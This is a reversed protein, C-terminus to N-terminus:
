YVELFFGAYLNLVGANQHAHNILLSNKLLSLDENPDLPLAKRDLFSQFFKAILLLICVNFGLVFFDETNSGLEGLYGNFARNCHCLVRAAMRSVDSKKISHTFTIWPEEAKSVENVHDDERLFPITWLLM